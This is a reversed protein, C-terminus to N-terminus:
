RLEQSETEFPASLRLPELREASPPDGKSAARMARNIADVGAGAEAATVAQAFGPRAALVALAGAHRDSATSRQPQRGIEESRGEPAEGLVSADSTADAVFHNVGVLLEDGGALKQIRQQATARVEAQLWGSELVTLIGGAAEIEQFFSWARTALETTLTEVYCSGATPDDIRSLHAEEQLILQINRALRTAQVGPPGLPADYPVICLSHVSGFAAALAAATTRLLNTHPERKSLSQQGTSAHVRVAHEGAAAGFADLVAPWLTHLARLKAIEMFLDAGVAFAFDLQAAVGDIQMGHDLMARVTAAGTALAIGLEHVAHAGAQQYPTVDVLLTRLALDQEIAWQSLCASERQIADVSAPLQGSSVLEAYPDNALLGNPRLTPQAQFLAAYALASTGAFFHIAAHLQDTGLAARLDAASHLWCETAASRLTLATLGNDLGDQAAAHFEAATRVQPEHGILWQNPATGAARARYQANPRALAAPHADRRYLPHRDIGEYTTSILNDPDAGRLSAHLADRWAEESPPEFEDFHLLRKSQTPM